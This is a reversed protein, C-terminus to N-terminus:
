KQHKLRQWESSIMKLLDKETEEYAPSYEHRHTTTITQPYSITSNGVKMTQWITTQTEYFGPSEARLRELLGIIEKERGREEMKVFEKVAKRAMQYVNDNGDRLALLYCATKERNTMPLNHVRTLVASRIMPNEDRLGKRALQNLAEGGRNEAKNFREMFDKLERKQQVYHGLAYAGGVPFAAFLLGMLGLLSREITDGRRWSQIMTAGLERVFEPVASDEMQPCRWAYSGCKELQEDAAQYVGATGSAMLVMLGGFIGWKWPKRYGNGGFNVNDHRIGSVPLQLRNLGAISSPPMM